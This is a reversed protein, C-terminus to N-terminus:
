KLLFACVARTAYGYSKKYLTKLIQNLCGALIWNSDQLYMKEIMVYFLFSVIFLIYNIANLIWEINELIDFGTVLVPSAPKKIWEQQLIYFVIKVM